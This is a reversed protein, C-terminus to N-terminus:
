EVSLGAKSEKPLLLALMAPATCAAFKGLKKVAERRNSDPCGSERKKPSRAQVAHKKAKSKSKSV